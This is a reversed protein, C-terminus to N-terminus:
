KFEDFIVAFFIGYRLGAGCVMIEDINYTILLEKYAIRGFLMSMEKEILKPNQKDLRQVYSLRRKKGEPLSSDTGPYIEWALHSHERSLINDAIDDIEAISLISGHQYKNGRKGTMTTIGSGVGLAKITRNKYDFKNHGEINEREEDILQDFADQFTINNNKNLYSFLRNKLVVTGIDLSQLSLMNIEQKSFEGFAIETSGGGQDILMGINNNGLYNKCTLMASMLSYKAEEDETLITIEIDTYQKILSAIDNGNNALRFIGTVVAFINNVDFGHEAEKKFENIKEVTDKVASEDLWGKGDLGNGLFTLAGRNTFNNFSFGTNLFEDRDAILMRTAKTGIDMVAINM